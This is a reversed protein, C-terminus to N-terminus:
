SPQPGQRKPVPQAPETYDREFAAWEAAHRAELDSPFEESRGSGNHVDEYEDAHRQLLELEAARRTAAADPEAEPEDPASSEMYFRLVGNMDRQWQVGGQAQQKQFWDVIDADLQMTVTAKAPAAETAAKFDAAPNERPSFDPM